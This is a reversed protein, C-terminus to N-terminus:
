AATARADIPRVLAAWVVRHRAFPHLAAVPGDPRHNDYVQGKYAVLVHKSTLLLTPFLDNAFTSCSKVTTGNSALATTRYGLQKLVEVVEFKNVEDVEGHLQAARRLRNFAPFVVADYPQGTLLTIATPGCALGPPCSHIM